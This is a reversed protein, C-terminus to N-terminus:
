RQGKSQADNKGAGAAIEPFYAETLDSKVLGTSIVATGIAGGGMGKLFSRRSLKTEKKDDRM